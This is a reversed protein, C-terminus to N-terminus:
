NLFRQRLKHAVEKENDLILFLHNLDDKALYQPVFVFGLIRTKPSVLDTCKFQNEYQKAVLSQFEATPVVSKIQDQVFTVLDDIPNIEKELAEDQLYINAGAICSVVEKAGIFSRLAQFYERAFPGYDGYNILSDHFHLAHGQSDFTIVPSCHAAGDDYIVSPDEPTTLTSWQGLPHRDDKEGSMQEWTKLFNTQEPKCLVSEIKKVTAIDIEYSKNTPETEHQSFETESM